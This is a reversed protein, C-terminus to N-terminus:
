VVSQTVKKFQSNAAASAVIKQSITEKISTDAALACALEYFLRTSMISHNAVEITLQPTVEDPDTPIVPTANIHNSLQEILSSITAM